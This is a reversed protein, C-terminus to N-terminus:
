GPKKENRGSLLPRHLIAGQHSVNIELVADMCKRARVLDGLSHRRCQCTSEKGSTGGPFGMM